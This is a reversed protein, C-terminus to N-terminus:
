LNRRKELYICRVKSKYIEKTGPAKLLTVEGDGGPKIQMQIETELEPSLDSGTTIRFVHGEKVMEKFFLKANGLAEGSSAYSSSEVLNIFKIENNRDFDGILAAVAKMSGDFSLIDIETQNFMGLNLNRNTCEIYPQQYKDTYSEFSGGSMVYGIARRTRLSNTEASGDRLYKYFAEHLALAVRNTVDMKDILKKNVLIVSASPYTKYIVLQEIQCDSTELPKLDEFSDNTLNLEAGEVVRVDDFGGPAINLIHQGTWDLTAAFADDNEFVLANKLRAIAAHLQELPTGKGALAPRGHIVRSEWLDLLEISKVSGDANRCVLGKGGGGDSGGSIATGSHDRGGGTRASTDNQPEIVRTCATLLALVAILFQFHRM